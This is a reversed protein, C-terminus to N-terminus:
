ITLYKIYKKNQTVNYKTETFNGKQKLALYSTIECECQMMCSKQLIADDM